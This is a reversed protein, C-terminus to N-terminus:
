PAAATTFVASSSASTPVIDVHSWRADTLLGVAEDPSVMTVIKEGMAATGLRAAALLARSVVTRGRRPAAFDVALTSGPAARSRVARLLERLVADPLYATM